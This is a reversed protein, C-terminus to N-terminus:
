VVSKRDRAADRNAFTRIRWYVLPQPFQLGKESAINFCGFKPRPQGSPVDDCAVGTHHEHVTGAMEQGYLEGVILPTQVVLLSALIGLLAATQVCNM